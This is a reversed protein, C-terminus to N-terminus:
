KCRVPNKPTYPKRAKKVIHLIAGGLLGLFFTWGILAFGLIAYGMVNFSAEVEDAAAESAQAPSTLVCVALVLFLLLMPRRVTDGECSQPETSKVRGALNLFNPM